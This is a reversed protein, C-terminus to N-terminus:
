KQSPQKPVRAAFFPDVVRVPQAPQQPESSVAAVRGAKFKAKFKEALSAHAALVETPSMAAVEAAKVNFHVGMAEVSTRAIALANTLLSDQEAAKASLSEVQAKLGVVEEAAQAASVKAVDLEATLKAIEATLDPTPAQAVPAPEGEPTGEDLKVGALAALAIQDEDMNSEKTPVNHALSQEIVAVEARVTASNSASPAKKAAKAALNATYSYAAAFNGVEDVLGATVGQRGVFTKGSGFKEQAVKTSLGRREAVHGLFISHLEQGQSAMQEKAKDSLPEYPTNTAKDEGSRIIEVKIGDNALQKSRDIHLQLVGVSGTIATEAAFVRRGVAGLWIAASAMTGGTYTVIPKVKDVQALTQAADHVGAVHGGGSAVDLLIAKVDQDAAAATAMNTIDEYGTYGFLSMFGASGEVLSGKIPIIAVGNSVQYPKPAPAERGSSMMAAVQARHELEAHFQSESGCYLLVENM